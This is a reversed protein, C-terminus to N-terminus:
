EVKFTEGVLTNIYREPTDVGEKPVVVQAVGKKQGMLRLGYEMAQLIRACSTQIAELTRPERTLLRDVAEESFSVKIGCKESIEAESSHIAQILGIFADCVERPDVDHDQSEKAMLQLRKPTTLVQHDELYNGMRKLIFTTLREYEQTQLAEFRARHDAQVAADALLRELVVAPSRVMEVDVVLHRISTSPLKKEYHLLIKEMVSVLGRAGTRERKALKAIERLAGDEFQLSVGYM